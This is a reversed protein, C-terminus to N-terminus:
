SSLSSISSFPNFVFTDISIVVPAAIVRTVATTDVTASEERAKKM